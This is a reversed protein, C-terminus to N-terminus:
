FVRDWCIIAAEVGAVEPVDLPEHWPALRDFRHLTLALFRIPSNNVVATRSNAVAENTEATLRHEIACAHCDPSVLVFRLYALCELLHDFYRRPLLDGKLESYQRRKAIRRQPSVEEDSRTKNPRVANWVVKTIGNQWAGCAAKRALGDRIGKAVVQECVM